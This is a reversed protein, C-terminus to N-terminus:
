KESYLKIGTAFPCQKLRAAQVMADRKGMAISLNHRNGGNISGLGVSVTPYIGHRNGSVGIGIGSAQLGTRQNANTNIYQNVRTYENALAVCDYSQYNNASVYEPTPTTMCGTLGAMAAAALLILSALKKM